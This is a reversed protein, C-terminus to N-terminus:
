VHARGIQPLRMIVGPVLPMIKTTSRAVATGTARIRDRDMKVEVRGVRVKRPGSSSASSPLQLKREEKCAGAGVLACALLASLAPGLTATM